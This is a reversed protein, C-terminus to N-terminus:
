GLKGVQHLVVLKMKLFGVALDAKQSEQLHVVPRTRLVFTGFVVAFQGTQVQVGRHQQAKGRQKLQFHGIYFCGNKRKQFIEEPVVEVRELEPADQEIRRFKLSRVTTGDALRPISRKKQDLKRELIRIQTGYDTLM